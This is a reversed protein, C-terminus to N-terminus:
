AARRLITRFTITNHVSNLRKLTFPQADMAHLHQLKKNNFCDCIDGNQRFMNSAYHFYCPFLPLLNAVVLESLTYM